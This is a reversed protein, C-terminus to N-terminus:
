DIMQGVGFGFRLLIWDVKSTSHFTLTPWTPDRVPEGRSLALTLSKPADASAPCTWNRGDQITCGTLKASREQSGLVWFLVEGHAKLARYRFRPGAALKGSCRNSEWAGNRCDVTYITREGQLTVKDTTWIFFAFCLVAPIAMWRLKFRKSRDMQHLERM